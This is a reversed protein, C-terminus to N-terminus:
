SLFLWRYLYYKESRQLGKAKIEEKVVGCTPMKEGLYPNKIEKMESLWSAGKSKNYMPCYDKYLTQSSGTSKVFDIMDQSLQDFHERQHAIDTSNAGIHEAHEKIDDKVDDYTKKQEPTFASTDLGALFVVIQNAASAAEKGNDGALANKLNLYGSVIDDTTGPKQVQTNNASVQASSTDKNEASNENPKSTNNNCAMFVVTATLFSILLLTKM